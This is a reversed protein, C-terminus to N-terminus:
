KRSYPAYFECSDIVHGNIESMIEDISYEEAPLITDLAYLRFFYRHEGKPPCPGGYGRSGFSTIGEEAGFVQSNERIADTDPPINFVIWHVWAGSPADPDDVILVLSVATKPVEFFEVPPNVDQGDCTYKKPIPNKESFQPSSIRM